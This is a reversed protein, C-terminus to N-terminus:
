LSKSRFYSVTLAQGPPLQCDYRDVLEQTTKLMWPDLATNGTKTFCIDDAIYVAAHLLTGDPKCLLVVDGYRPDGVAPFYKAKLEEMVNRPNAFTSDPTDNFFNLATWASDRNIPATPATGDNPAPYDYLQETPLPPLVMLISMWTGNKITTLSQLITQVDTNWASKAWYEALEPIDSRPTVRLRLLMTRQLSLAKVFHLKDAAAPLRSLLAPLGSFVLYNGRVFCLRRFLAVTDASVGSDPAFRDSLTDRRIYFMQAANEPFQALTQYLIARADDPLSIVQDPTPRLIVGGGQAQCVGPALLARQQDPSLSTFALFAAFAAPTYGKLFWQTGAAEMEKVPLMADPAAITFSTYSLDGWPGPKCLVSGNPLERRESAGQQFGAERGGIFGGVIGVILCVIGAVAWRSGNKVPRQAEASQPAATSGIAASTAPM